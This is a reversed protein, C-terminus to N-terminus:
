HSEGDQGSLYAIQMVIGCCYFGYTKENSLDPKGYSSIDAVYMALLILQGCGLLFVRSSDRGLDISDFTHHLPSFYIYMYVILM